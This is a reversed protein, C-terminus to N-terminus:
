PTLIAAFLPAVSHRIGKHLETETPRRLGGCLQAEIEKLRASLVGEDEPKIRVVGQTLARLLFQKRKGEIPQAEGEATAVFCCLASGQETWGTRQDTKFTQRLLAFVATPKGNFLGEPPIGAPWRLHAAGTPMEPLALKRLLEAVIPVNLGLRNVKEGNPGAVPAGDGDGLMYSLGDRLRLVEVPDDHTTVAGEVLRFRSATFGEQKEAAGHEKLFLKMDEWNALGPDQARIEAQRNAYRDHFERWARFGSEVMEAIKNQEDPRLPAASGEILVDQLEEPSILCMVRSFISDFREPAVITSAVLRLRERAVRYADAERSEKVVITDVIITQKSGFRHVRGVRQELEMPNWPVDIHVLRRAVQLNIGEGGARSSVLFRPGDKRWFLDQQQQRELDSQGGMIIAPKEGLHQELYKALACVTEIPQAFLVVKEGESKALVNANLFDWKRNAFGKLVRLGEVMLENLTEKEEADLATTLDDDDELDEIDQEDAQRRVERRIRALLNDLPEDATGDRYPRLAALSDSLVGDNLQWSARVAQRALYGLGAQPSSAAWQLAQACRWGAARQKAKRQGSSDKPPKYFDHIHQLWAQYESGLDLVLPENIKRNPFLPNGNWDRVDEKTRYIVRGALASEPEAERRLLRLLNDFRHMHGQHPTGSMLLLRSEPTQRAVLDRVLRFKLVPDGGGAAWDSLHHCEDVVIVDWPGTNVIKKFNDGHVARHISAIIRPDGLTVLLADQPTKIEISPRGLQVTRERFIAAKVARKSRDDYHELSLLLPLDPDGRFASTNARESLYGHRNVFRDYTQNLQARTTELESDDKSEIQTRLCRRVADRVAIMGRIRQVLRSSMGEVIRIHDGDRIGIQDNVMTYANPKVHEPAAFVQEVVPARVQNDLPTFLMKPLSGIAQTLQDALDKGNGALTPENNRYMRGELRMEGLMLHPREVFFENLQITEGLSNTVEGIAKWAPGQPLEGVLRKRLIVIDTTVETNANKKFADNPLRIAGILDAQHAIYERLAGDLKDMTGKSTIFLVLGGPRVKDLAKAFFYDHIVFNWNKFQPDFPKYDGFPINSIAVDYFGDALRAEEFPQHRIDADPYLQRTLRSTISDIEIGTVQSRSHMEDPMLGVFHGLGCAPELIRGHEFGLQKLVAFMARIILPATYHANLTTARASELEETTLLSELRGREEAWQENCPDFVQPLGGWGVYRVLIRKEEDTPRRQEHELVKLLVRVLFADNM